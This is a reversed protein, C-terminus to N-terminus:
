PVLLLLIKVHLSLDYISWFLVMISMNIYTKSNNFKLKSYTTYKCPELSFLIWYEIRINLCLYETFLREVAIGIARKEGTGDRINIELFGYQRCLCYLIYTVCVLLYLHLEEEREDSKFLYHIKVGKHRRSKEKCCTKSIM